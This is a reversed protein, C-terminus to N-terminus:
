ASRPRESASKRFNKFDDSVRLKRAYDRIEDIQDVPVLVRVYKFGEAEVKRDHRRRRDHPEGAIHREIPTSGRAMGM